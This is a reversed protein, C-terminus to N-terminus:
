GPPPLGSPPSECISICQPSTTVWIMPKRMTSQIRRRNAQPGSWVFCHDCDYNCRYTLLLHLGTLNM